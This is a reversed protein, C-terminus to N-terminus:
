NDLLFTMAFAQTFLYTKLYNRYIVFETTCIEFLELRKNVWVLGYM